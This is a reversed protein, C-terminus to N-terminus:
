GSVKSLGKIEPIISMFLRSLKKLLGYLKKLMEADDEWNIDPNDRFLSKLGTTAKEIEEKKMKTDANDYYTNHYAKWLTYAVGDISISRSAISFLVTEGLSVGM